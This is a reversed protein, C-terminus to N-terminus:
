KCKYCSVFVLFIYIDLLSALVSHNLDLTTTLWTIVLDILLATQFLLLIAPLFDGRTRDLMDWYSLIGKLGPSEYRPSHFYLGHPQFSPEYKPCLWPEWIIRATVRMKGQWVRATTLRVEHGERHPAQHIRRHLPQPSDTRKRAVQLACSWPQHVSPTKFSTLPFDKREKKREQEEYFIHYYEVNKLVYIFLSRLLKIEKDLKKSSRNM